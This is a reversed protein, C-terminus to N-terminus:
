ALGSVELHRELLLMAPAVKAPAVKSWTQVLDSLLMVTEWLAVRRGSVPALRQYRDLFRACVLELQGLRRAAAARGRATGDRAEVLGAGKVSAMFLALDMAPEAQCIDDFDIFAIRDGDLLVQGPRFSGHAPGAPDAPQRTALEGVMALLPTAADALDPVAATLTRLMGHLEGLEGALTVPEGHRVACTHLAALGAATRDMATDLEALADSTGATLAARILQKLTQQEGVPGQLLVGLEPEYALPEAIGVVDGAALPSAWLARMGDWANRGKDGRYAKAVVLRPGDVGPPYVLDYLITCRNGPKSRVVHPTCAALRLGAYAPAAARLQQELLFRARAPDTLVPLAPLAAEEAPAITLELGLEPLVRRWGPTGFPTAAPGESVPVAMPPHVTGLLAVARVVGDPGAVTVEYRGTWTGERSNLRLRKAAVRSVALQPEHRALAAGIREPDAAAALWEPLFGFRHLSARVGAPVQTTM